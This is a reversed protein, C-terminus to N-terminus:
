AWVEKLVRLVNGGVVKAIDADSYNKMVLYRLINHSAETPNEFGRIYPM